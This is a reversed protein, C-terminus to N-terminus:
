EVSANPVGGKPTLLTRFSARLTTNTPAIFPIFRVSGDGFAFNVGGAFPSGWSNQVGNNPGDRVISTGGRATGWSGGSFVPEDGDFSDGSSFQQDNIAKEGILITNSVGDRIDDLRLKQAPVPSSVTKYFGTQATYPLDLQQATIGVDSPPTVTTFLFANMAYDTRSFVNPVSVGSVRSPGTTGLPESQRRANLNFVKLEYNAGSQNDFITKQEVYPLLAYAWSGRQDRNSYTPLGWGHKPESGSAQFYPETASAALYGGNQPLFLSSSNFNQFALAIQRLNNQSHTRQSAERVKQVAPLLLGVLTAIIAIVVLLEVLTFGRRARLPPRMVDNRENSLIFPAVVNVALGTGPRAPHSGFRRRGPRSPSRDIVLVKRLM